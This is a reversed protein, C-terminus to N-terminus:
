SHNSVTIFDLLKLLMHGYGMYGILIKVFTRTDTYILIGEHFLFREVVVM